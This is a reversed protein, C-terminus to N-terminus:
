VEATLQSFAVDLSTVTRDVNRLKDLGFLGIRFTKFEPPEDCRLPVGAATQLGLGILKSGSQIETDDTYSVIVSPSQFGSAAVSAFGKGALMRRVQDGLEQQAAKAHEFGFDELETMSDRLHALADTPM